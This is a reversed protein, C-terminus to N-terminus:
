KGVEEEARSVCERISEYPADPVSMCGIRYSSVKIDHIGKNILYACAGFYALILAVGIYKYKIM